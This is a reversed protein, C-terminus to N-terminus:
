RPFTLPEQPRDSRLKDVSPRSCTGGDRPRRGSRVTSRMSMGQHALVGIGVVTWIVNRGKRALALSVGTAAGLHLGTSVLGDGAEDVGIWMPVFQFVITICRNVCELVFAALISAPAGAILSLVVWVETVAAAHFVIELLLVLLVKKRHRAAFRAAVRRLGSVLRGRSQRVWLGGASLAATGALVSLSAFRLPTAVPFSLLMAATGCLLLVVVTAGYILNEASLAAVSENPSVYRRTLVIKS